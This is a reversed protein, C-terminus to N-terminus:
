LFVFSFCARDKTKNTDERDFLMKINSWWQDGLFNVAKTLIKFVYCLFQSHCTYM